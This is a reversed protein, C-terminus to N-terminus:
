RRLVAAGIWTGSGASMRESLGDVGVCGGREVARWVREWVLGVARVM